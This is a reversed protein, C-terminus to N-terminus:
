PLVWSAVALSLSWFHRMNVAMATRVNAMTAARMGIFGTVLSSLAGVVFVVPVLLDRTAIALLVTIVATVIAIIKYEERLFTMAGDSIAAAIRRADAHEVPIAAIKKFLLVVTALGVLATGFYLLFYSLVEM